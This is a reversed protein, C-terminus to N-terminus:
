PARRSADPALLIADIFTAHDRAFSNTLHNSDLHVPMGRANTAPCTMEPCLAGSPDIVVAGSAAAIERLRSMLPAVYSEYQRDDVSRRSPDVTIREPLHLSLRVRSPFLYGPDFRPSTPNSLM